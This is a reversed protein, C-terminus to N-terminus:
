APPEGLAFWRGPVVERLEGLAALHASAAVLDDKSLDGDEGEYLFFLIRYADFAEVDTNVHVPDSILDVDVVRGREDTMRCGAGHVSYEIGSSSRGERPMERRSRVAAMLDAVDALHPFAAFLRGRIERLAAAYRRVADAASLANQSVAAM